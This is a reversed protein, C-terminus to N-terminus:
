YETNTLLLGRGKGRHLGLRPSDAPGPEEEGDRGHVTWPVTWQQELTPTHLVEPSSCLRRPRFPDAFRHPLPGLLLTPRSSPDIPTGWRSSSRNPGREGRPCPRSPSLSLKVTIRIITSLRCQRGRRLKARRRRVNSLLPRSARVPDGECPMSCPMPGWRRQGACVVM